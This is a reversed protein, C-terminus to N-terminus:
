SRCLVPLKEFAWFFRNPFMHFLQFHGFTQDHSLSSNLLATGYKSHRSRRWNFAQFKNLASRCMTDFHVHMVPAYSTFMPIVHFVHVHSCSRFMCCLVCFISGSRQCTIQLTPVSCSTTIRRAHLCPHAVYKDHLRRIRKKRTGNTPHWQQISSPAMPSQTGNTPAM